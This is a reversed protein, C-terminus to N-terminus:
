CRSGAIAVTAPPIPVIAPAGKTNRMAQFMFHLAAQIPPALVVVLLLLSVFFISSFIKLLVALKCRLRVTPTRTRAPRMPM